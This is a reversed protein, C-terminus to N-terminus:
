VKIFNKIYFVFVFTMSFNLPCESMVYIREYKVGRKLTHVLKTQANYFWATIIRLIAEYLGQCPYKSKGWILLLVFYNLNHMIFTFQLSEVFNKSIHMIFSLPLSYHNM